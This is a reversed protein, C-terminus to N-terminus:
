ETIQADDVTFISSFLFYILYILHWLNFSFRNLYLKVLMCVLHITGSVAGKFTSVAEINQATGDSMDIDTLACAVLKNNQDLLVLSRRAISTLGTLPLNNSSWTTQNLYRSLDGVQETLIIIYYSIKHHYFADNRCNRVSALDRDKLHSFM